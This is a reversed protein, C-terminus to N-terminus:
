ESSKFLFNNYINAAPPDDFIFRQDPIGTNTRINSFDFRIRTDNVTRGAVRRILKTEPNIDLIIERFGESASRRELRLKVVMESSGDELPVPAPGVVFAPIYNRRLLTLGRATALNAGQQQQGAVNQSLIARDGPLYVMLTDGNFVIVQGAPSIFDIRFLNPGRHSVNGTMQTNGSRIDIRAQYDRISSYRESVQELYSGATLIEQASVTFLVGAVLAAACLLRKEM